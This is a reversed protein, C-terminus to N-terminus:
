FEVHVRLSTVFVPGRARNFGPNFIGQLDPGTYLGHWVHATYYLEFLNERGYNLAGDGLVFGLGGLALYRAHASSIGNSAFAAGARDENRKWLWGPFGLGGSVTQDIETFSWSETQGNNWGFRGYATIAPTVAQEFNLGFGYKATVQVPHASLDPAPTVGDFYQQIATKYVGMNAHNMWALLRIIGTKTVPGRHLEFEGNSTNARRLNWVLPGGNQPGTELAEAYRAGWPPSQYEAVVGWTYGRADATFDYTGNQDISWNMFQLHSDSGVANTDFFDPIAFKGLRIELRHQPLEAFMSLPGRGPTEKERDFGFYHDVFVRALYPVATLTPDRVADLNTFGGLGLASSLGLGAASEGDAEVATSRNLPVGTYITVVNGVAKDHHARFSNPGSYRADFSPNAQWIANEQASIWFRGETLHPIMTPATTTPSQPNPHQPVTVDPIQGSARALSLVGILVLLLLQITGRETTPKCPQVQTM